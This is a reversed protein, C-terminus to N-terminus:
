NVEKISVSFSKSMGELMRGIANHLSMTLLTDSTIIKNDKMKSTGIGQWIVSEKEFSFLKGYVIVRSEYDMAKPLFGKNLFIKLKYSLSTPKDIKVVKAEKIEGFLIYDVQYNKKLYEYEISNKPPLDIIPIVTISAFEWKNKLIEETLKLSMQTVTSKILGLERGYNMVDTRLDRYHSVGITIKKPPRVLSFDKVERDYDEKTLSVTKSCAILFFSLFFLLFFRTNIM